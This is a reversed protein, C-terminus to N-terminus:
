RRGSCRYGRTIIREQLVHIPCAVKRRVDIRMWQLQLVEDEEPTSEEYMRCTYPMEEDDPAAESHERSTQAKCEDVIAKVADPLAALEASEGQLDRVGRSSRGNKQSTVDSMGSSLFVPFNSKCRCRSPFRSVQVEDVETM